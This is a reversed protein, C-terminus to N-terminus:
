NLFRTIVIITAMIIVVVVTITATATAVVTTANVYIRAIGVKTSFYSVFLLHSNLILLLLKLDNQWHMMDVLILFVLTFTHAIIITTHEQFVEKIRQFDM